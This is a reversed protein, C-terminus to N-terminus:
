HCTSVLRIATPASVFLELLRVKMAIVKGEALWQRMTMQRMVSVGNACECATMARDLAADNDIQVQQLHALAEAHRADAAAQAAALMDSTSQQDALTSASVVALVYACIIKRIVMDVATPM